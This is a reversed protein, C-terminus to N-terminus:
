RPSNTALRPLYDNATDGHVRQHVKHWDPERIRLEYGLHQLAPVYANEDSSDPVVLVVDVLPKTSLGPVATSDVHVISIASSGLAARICPVEGEFLIPWMPDYFSLVIIANLANLTRAEGVTSAAIESDSLPQRTSEV